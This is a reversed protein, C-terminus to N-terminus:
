NYSDGRTYFFSRGFDPCGAQWKNRAILIDVLDDFRYLKDGVHAIKDLIQSVWAQVTIFARDDFFGVENGYGWVYRVRGNVRWGSCIRQGM